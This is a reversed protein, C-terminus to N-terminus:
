KDDKKRYLLRYLIIIAVGLFASIWTFALGIEDHRRRFLVSVLALIALLIILIYKVKTM